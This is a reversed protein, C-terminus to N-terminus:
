LPSGGQSDSAKGTDPTSEALVFSVRRLTGRVREVTKNMEDGAGGIKKAVMEATDDGANRAAILKGVVIHEADSKKAKRKRVPEISVKDKAAAAQAVTTFKTHHHRQKPAASEASDVRASADYGAPNTDAEAVVTAKLHKIPKSPLVSIKVEPKATAQPKQTQVQAHPVQAIVAVHKTPSHFLVGALVIAAAAASIGASWGWISRRPSPRKETQLDALRFKFSQALWESPVEDTWGHLAASLQVISAREKACEDCRSVHRELEVRETQSLEGDHEMSIMIVADKCKM